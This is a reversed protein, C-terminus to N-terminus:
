KKFTGSFHLASIFVHPPILYIFIILYFTLLVEKFSSLFQFKNSEQNLGVQVPGKSTKRPRPPPSNWGRLFPVERQFKALRYFFMMDRFIFSACIMKWFEHSTLIVDYYSFHRFDAFTDLVAWILPMELIKWKTTKYIVQSFTVGFIQVLIKGIIVNYCGM